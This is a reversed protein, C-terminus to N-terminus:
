GMTRANGWGSDLSLRNPLSTLQGWLTPSRGNVMFDTIHPPGPYVYIHRKGLYYTKLTV